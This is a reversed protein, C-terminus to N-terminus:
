TQAKPILGGWGGRHSPLGELKGPVKSGSGAPWGCVQRLLSSEPSGSERSYPSAPSPLPSIPRPPSTTRPAFTTGTHHLHTQNGRGLGGRRDGQPPCRSITILLSTDKRESGPDMYESVTTPESTLKCPPHFRLGKLEECFLGGAGPKVAIEGWGGGRGPRQERLWNSRLSPPGGAHGQESAEGMPTPGPRGACLLGTPVEQPQQPGPAKAEKIGWMLNVGRQIRAGTGM